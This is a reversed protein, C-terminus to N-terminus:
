VVAPRNRPKYYAGASIAPTLSVASSNNYNRVPPKPKHYARYSVAHEPTMDVPQKTPISYVSAVISAMPRVPASDVTFVAVEATPVATATAPAEVPAEVAAVTPTPASSSSPESLARHIPSQSRISSYSRLPSSRVPTNTAWTSKPKEHPKPSSPTTNPKEPESPPSLTPPAPRTAFESRSSRVPRTAFESRSHRVPRTLPASESM